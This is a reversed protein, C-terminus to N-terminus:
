PMAQELECLLGRTVHGRLAQLTRPPIPELESYRAPRGLSAVTRRCHEVWVRDEREATLCRSWLSQAASRVESQSWRLKAAAKQEPGHIFLMLEKRETRLLEIQDDIGKLRAAQVDRNGM